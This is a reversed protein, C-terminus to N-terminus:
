RQGKCRTFEVSIDAPDNGEYPDIHRTQDDSCGEKQFIFDWYALDFTAYSVNTPSAYDLYQDDIVSKYHVRAGLPYSSLRAHFVARGTDKVILYAKINDKILHWISEVDPSRTGAMKEDAPRTKLQVYTLLNSPRGFPNGMGPISSNLHIHLAQYHARFDAFFVPLKDQPTMIQRLYDKETADLQDQARDVISTLFRRLQIPDASNKEVGTDLEGSLATLQTVKTQLFQKQTVSLLVVAATPFETADPLAAVTVTSANVKFPTAKSFGPCPNLTGSVSTYAGGKIDRPVDAKLMQTVEGVRAGAGANFSESPGQFSVYIYTACPVPKDLTLKVDLTEGTNVSAQSLTIEASSQANCAEVCAVSLVCCSLLTRMDM